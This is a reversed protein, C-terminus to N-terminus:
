LREAHARAVEVECNGGVALAIVEELAHVRLGDDCVEGVVVAIDRPVIRRVERVRARGIDSLRGGVEHPAPLVIKERGARRPIEGVRGFGGDGLGPVARITHEAIGMPPILAASGEM